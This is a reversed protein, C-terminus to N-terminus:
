QTMRINCTEDGNGTSINLTVIVKQCIRHKQDYDSNILLRHLMQVKDNILIKIPNMYYDCSGEIGENNLDTIIPGLFTFGSTSYVSPMDYQSSPMKLAMSTHHNNLRLSTCAQTNPADGRVYALSSAFGATCVLTLSGLFISLKRM